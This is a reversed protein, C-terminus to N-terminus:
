GADGDIQAHRRQQDALQRRVQAQDGRRTQSRYRTQGAHQGPSLLHIGAIARLLKRVVYNGVLKADPIKKLIAECEKEWINPQLVYETVGDFKISYQQVHSSELHSKIVDVVEPDASLLWKTNGDVWLLGLPNEVGDPPPLLLRKADDPLDYWLRVIPENRGAIDKHAYVDCISAREPAPLYPVYGMTKMYRTLPDQCASLGLSLLMLPMLRKM